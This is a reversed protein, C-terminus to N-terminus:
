YTVYVRSSSICLVGAVTNVVKEKIAPSQAGSCVVAVGRVKPLITSEELAAKDSGNGILVVTSESDLSGSSSGDNASSSEGNRSDRAYVRETTSDLTVMVTPSSVGEIESLLAELRQELQQEIAAADEEPVPETSETPLLTSLFILVMLAAGIVVAAKRIKENSLLSNCDSLKLAMEVVENRLCCRVFVVKLNQM